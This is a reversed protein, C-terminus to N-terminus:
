RDGCSACRRFGCRHCVDGDGAAGCRICFLFPSITGANVSTSVTTDPKSTDPTSTPVPPRFVVIASPFPAGNESGGFKLRGKVVRIEAANLVFDHWWSTDTRSPVLCVVTAGDKASKFAKEVWKGIMRGYPPNMWCVGSWVQKLGDQEPTFYRRCKANEAIACVDVTFGFEDHLEAFLDPPTSWVDTKSSFHVDMRAWETKRPKPSRSM